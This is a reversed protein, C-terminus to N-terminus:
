VCRILRLAQEKSRVILFCFIYVVVKDLIQIKDCTYHMGLCIIFLRIVIKIKILGLPFLFM